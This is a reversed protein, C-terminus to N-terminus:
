VCLGSYATQFPIFWASTLLNFSSYQVPFMSHRLAGALPSRLSGSKTSWVLFRQFGQRLAQKLLNLALLTNETL